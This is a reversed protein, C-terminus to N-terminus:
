HHPAGTMTGFGAPPRKPKVQRVFSDEVQKEGYMYLVFYMIWVVFAGAGYLILWWGMNFKIPAASMVSIYAMTLIFFLTNVKLYTEREHQPMDTTKLDKRLSRYGLPTVIALAVCFLIWLVLPAMHNM